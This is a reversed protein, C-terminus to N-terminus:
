FFFFFPLLSVSQPVRLTWCRSRQVTKLLLDLAIVATPQLPTSILTAPISSMSHSQAVTPDDQTFHKQNLWSLSKVLPFFDLTERFTFLATTAIVLAHLLCQGLQRTGNWRVKTDPGRWMLSSLHGTKFSLHPSTASKASLNAFTKILKVNWFYAIVQEWRRMAIKRYTYIRVCM